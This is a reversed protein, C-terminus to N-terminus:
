MRGLYRLISPAPALNPSCGVPLWPAGRRVRWFDIIDGVLYITDADNNQLFDLLAQARCARTALHLDSIFLTRSRRRQHITRMESRLLGAM